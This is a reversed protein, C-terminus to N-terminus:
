IITYRHRLYVFNVSHTNSLISHVYVNFVNKKDNSSCLQSTFRIVLTESCYWSRLYVLYYGTNM